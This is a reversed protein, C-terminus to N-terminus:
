PLKKTSFLTCYQIHLNYIFTMTQFTSCDYLFTPLFYFSYVLNPTIGKVRFYYNGMIHNLWDRTEEINM